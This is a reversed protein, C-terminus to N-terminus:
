IRKLPQLYVEKKFGASIHVSICKTYEIYVVRSYHTSLTKKPPIIKRTEAFDFIEM